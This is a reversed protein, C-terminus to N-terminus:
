AVLATEKQRCLVEDIFVPGGSYVEVGTDSNQSVNKRNVAVFSEIQLFDGIQGGCFIEHSCDKGPLCEQKIFAWMGALHTASVNLFRIRCEKLLGKGDECEQAEARPLVVFDEPLITFVSSDAVIEIPSDGIFEVGKDYYSFCLGGLSVDKILGVIGEAVLLSKNKFRLRPFLRREQRREVASGM